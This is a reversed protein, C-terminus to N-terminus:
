INLTLKIDLTYIWKFLQDLSFKSSQEGFLNSVRPQTTELLLAMEFQSLEHRRQYQKLACVIQAKLEVIKRDPM